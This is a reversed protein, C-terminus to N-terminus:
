SGPCIESRPRQQCDTVEVTCVLWVIIPVSGMENTDPAMISSCTLNLMESTRNCPPVFRVIIHIINSSPYISHDVQGTLVISPDTNCFNLEAACPSAPTTDTSLAEVIAGETDHKQQHKDFHALAIARECLKVLLLEQHQCYGYYHYQYQCM